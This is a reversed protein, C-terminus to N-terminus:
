VKEVQAPAAKQVSGYAPCAHKTCSAFAMTGAVALLFFLKRM